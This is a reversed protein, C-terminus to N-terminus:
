FLPQLQNHGLFVPDPTFGVFLAQTEEDWQVGAKRNTIGLVYRFTFDGNIADQVVGNGNDLVGSLQWIDREAKVMVGRNAIEVDSFRINYNFQLNWMDDLFITANAVFDKLIFDMLVKNTDTRVARLRVQDLVAGATNDDSVMFVGKPKTPLSIDVSVPYKVDGLCEPDYQMNPLDKVLGNDCTLEASPDFTKM